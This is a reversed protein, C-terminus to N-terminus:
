PRVTGVLPGVHGLFQNYIAVVTGPASLHVYSLGGGAGTGILTESDLWGQPWVFERALVIRSGDQGVVEKVDSSALAVVIRREDPSLFAVVYGNNPRSAARWIESGDPRRVSLGGDAGLICAFSGSVAIHQVPCSQPDSVQKLVKGTNADVRVPTGQYTQPGHCQTVPQADSRGDCAWETLYTGIPGVQDWGVMALVNIGLDIRHEALHEPLSEHYLLTTAGGPQAAYVDLSYGGLAPPGGCGLQPDPPLTFVAGLLRSGDPSVAFSLMQQGSTLPFTAVKAIQGDVSLSRVVGTGDGFYVRGAAVHASLPPIAYVGTCGVNPVPMSAFSTQARINGDLGAISVRNWEFGSPVPVGSLAAFLLSASQSPQSLPSVSPGPSTSAPRSQVPGCAAAILLLSIMLRRM